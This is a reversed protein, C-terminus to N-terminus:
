AHRGGIFAAEFWPAYLGCRSCRHPLPCYTNGRSPCSVIFSDPRRSYLRGGDKVRITMEMSQMWLKAGRFGFFPQLPQCLVGHM